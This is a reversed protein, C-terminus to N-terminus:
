LGRGMIEKQAEKASNSLERVTEAAIKKGCINNAMMEQLDREQNHTRGGWDIDRQLETLEDFIKYEAKTMHATNTTTPYQKFNGEAYHIADQLPLQGLQQAREVAPKMLDDHIVSYKAFNELVEPKVRIWVTSWKDTASHYFETNEGHRRFPYLIDYLKTM